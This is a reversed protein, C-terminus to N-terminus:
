PGCSNSNGETNPPNGAGGTDSSGNQQAPSPAGTANLQNGADGTGGTENGSAQKPPEAGEQGGPVPPSGLQTADGTQSQLTHSANNENNIPNGPITNTPPNGVASLAGNQGGAAQTRQRPDTANGHRIVTMGEGNSSGGSISFDGALLGGYSQPDDAVKWVGEIRKMKLDTVHNFAQGGIEGTRTVPVTAEEGSIVPQGVTIQPKLFMGTYFIAFFPEQMAEKMKRAYADSSPFAASLGETLDYLTNWDQAKAAAFFRLAQERPDIAQQQKRHLLGWSAGGILLILLVIVIGIVVGHTTKSSTTPAM